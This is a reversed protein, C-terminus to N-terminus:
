DLKLLAVLEMQMATAIGLLVSKKGTGTSRVRRLTRQDIGAALAFDSLFLEPHDDLYKNIRDVAVSSTVSASRRNSSGRTGFPRQAAPDGTSIASGKDDHSAVHASQDEWSSDLALKSLHSCVEESAELPKLLCGGEYGDAGSLFIEEAM